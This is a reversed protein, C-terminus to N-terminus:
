PTVIDIVITIFFQWVHPITKVPALIIVLTIINIKKKKFNGMCNFTISIQIIM